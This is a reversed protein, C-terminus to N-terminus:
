PRGPRLAAAWAADEPSLTPEPDGDYIFMEYGASDYVRHLVAQLNLLPEPEGPRLPIPVSPLPERLRIPWFDARPRHEYRSVLAYYDCPPMNEWPMRPGGRLLDIEVFHTPTLLLRRVKNWYLDHDAGAYKNAPSLLEVATVVQRNRRDRIELYPLRIEDTAAPILVSAPGAAPTGGAPRPADGRPHVSLDPRGFPRREDASLEHIFVHEDIKVFYNPRVQPALEDAAFTMFRHHFDAWVEVRELYPNMGPFPSPM